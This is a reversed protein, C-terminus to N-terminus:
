PYGMRSVISLRENSRGNNYSVLVNVEDGNSICEFVSDDGQILCVCVPM